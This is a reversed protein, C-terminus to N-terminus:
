SRKGVRALWAAADSKSIIALIEVRGEVVDYFVRVDDVRLRFQPQALGRLRKIRSRSVASPEHRLHREVADKVAARVNARLRKLDEVAEPAFLIEHQMRAM